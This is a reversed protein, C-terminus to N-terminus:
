NRRTKVFGWLSVLFLALTTAHTSLCVPCVAHIRSLSIWSLGLSFLLGVSSILLRQAALQRLTARPNTSIASLAVIVFFAMGFAGWPINFLEGYAGGIVRDCNITESFGCGSSEGAKIRGHLVLAYVSIGFGLASLILHPWSVRLKHATPAATSTVDILPTQM